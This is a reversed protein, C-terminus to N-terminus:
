EILMEVEVPEDNQLVFANTEWNGTLSSAILWVVPNLKMNRIDTQSPVPPAPHSHFIGILDEDRKEAEILLRYQEVPDVEFKTRSKLVNDVLDFHKVIVDSNKVHGFLLVVSESPHCEQAHELLSDFMVRSLHLIFGM